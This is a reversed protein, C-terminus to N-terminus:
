AARRQGLRLRAPAAARAAFALPEAAAGSTSPDLTFLSVVGALSGAQDQMSQAAAATEQVLAANQVTDRDMQAIAANVQAIGSTQQGSADVIDAMIDTVRQVSAVIEDMTAGTQDVLQSGMGVQQVSDNILSKIEKAAAASRQALNRM